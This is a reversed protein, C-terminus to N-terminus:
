LLTLYAFFKGHDGGEGLYSGAYFLVLAGVGTILLVFLLSLGGLSFSFNVDVGAGAASWSGPLPFWRQTWRLVEGGAVRCALTLFYAFVGAPWLALVHGLRTGFVRYLAPAALGLAVSALISFPLMWGVANRGRTRRSQSAIVRKNA